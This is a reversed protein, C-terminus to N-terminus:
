ILEPPLILYQEDRPLTEPPSFALSLKWDKEEQTSIWHAVSIDKRTKRNESLIQKLFAAYGGPFTNRAYSLPYNVASVCVIVDPFVGNVWIPRNIPIQHLAFFADKTFAMVDSVTLLADARTGGLQRTNEKSNRLIKLHDRIKKETESCGKWIMFTRTSGCKSNPCFGYFLRRVQKFGTLPEKNHNLEDYLLLNSLAAGDTWTCCSPCIVRLNDVFIQTIEEPTKGQQHLNRTITRLSRLLHPTKLEYLAETNSIMEQFKPFDDCLEM